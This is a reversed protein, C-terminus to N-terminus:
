SQLDGEGLELLGFLNPGLANPLIHAVDPVISPLTHAYQALYTQLSSGGLHTSHVYIGCLRTWKYGCQGGVSTYKQNTVRM